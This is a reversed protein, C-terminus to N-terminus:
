GSGLRFKSKNALGVIRKATDKGGEDGGSSGPGASGGRELTVGKKQGAPQQGAAAQKGAAALYVMEVFKPERWSERFLDNGTAKAMFGAFEQASRLVPARKEPDALDPYKTELDDAERSRRETERQAIEPARAEAIRQDMMEGLARQQAERTLQGNEDFDDDSFRNPDFFDQQREPEPEEAEPEPIRSELGDFRQTIDSRFEDFLAGFDPTGDDDGAGEDDSEDEGEDGGLEDGEDAGDDGGDDGGSDDEGDNRPDGLWQRWPTVPEREWSAQEAAELELLERVMDSMGTM